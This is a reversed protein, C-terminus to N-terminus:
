GTANAPRSANAPPYTIFMQSFNTYSYAGTETNLTLNTSRVTGQQLYGSEVSGGAVPRSLHNAGAVVTFNALSIEYPNRTAVSPCGTYSINTERQSELSITACIALAKSHHLRDFRKPDATHM